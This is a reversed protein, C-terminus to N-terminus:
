LVELIAIAKCLEKKQERATRARPSAEAFREEPSDERGLQKVKERMTQIAIRIAQQRDM